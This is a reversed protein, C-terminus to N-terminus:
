SLNTTYKCAIYKQYALVWIVSYWVTWHYTSTTRNHKIHKTLVQRLFFFTNSQYKDTKNKINVSTMQRRINAKLFNSIQSSSEPKHGLHQLSCDTATNYPHAHGLFMILFGPYHEDNVRWQQDQRQFQSAWSQGVSLFSPINQNWPIFHM